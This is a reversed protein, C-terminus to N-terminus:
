ERGGGRRGLFENCTTPYGFGDRRREKRERGRAERAEGKLRGRGAVIV